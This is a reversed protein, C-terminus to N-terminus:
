DLTVSARFEAFSDPPVVVIRGYHGIGFMFTGRPARVTGTPIINAEGNPLVRYFALPPGQWRESDNKEFSFRLTGEKAVSVEFVQFAHLHMNSAPTCHTFIPLDRNFEPEIQDQISWLAGQASIQEGQRLRGIPIPGRQSTNLDISAPRGSVTVAAFNQGNEHASNPAVCIKVFYTGPEFDRHILEAANGRYPEGIMKRSQNYLELYLTTSPTEEMLFRLTSKTRAVRFSYYWQDFRTGRTLRVFNRTCLFHRHDPSNRDRTSPFDLTGLNLAGDFTYPPASSDFSTFDEM